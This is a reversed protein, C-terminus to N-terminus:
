DIPFPGAVVDMFQKHYWVVGAVGSEARLSKAQPRDVLLWVGQGSTMVVFKEREDKIAHPGSIIRIFESGRPTNGIFYSFTVGPEVPLRMENLSRKVLFVGDATVWPEYGQSKDTSQPPNTKAKIADDLSELPEDDDSESVEGCEGAEGAEGPGDAERTERRFVLISASPSVYFLHTLEWGSGGLEELRQNIGDTVQGDYVTIYHYEYKM